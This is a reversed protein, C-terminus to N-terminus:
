DRRAPIASARAWGSASTDFNTFAIYWADASLTLDPLQWATGIQYNWTREPALSTTQPTTRNFFNENPALAGAAM